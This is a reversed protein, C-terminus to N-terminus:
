RPKAEYDAIAARLKERQECTAPCIRELTALHERAKAPNRAMLYAEGVYEHAGLHRPNLELARRYHKFAAELNGGKRNSFGLLNQIDANSPDVRAASELSVIAGRWDQRNIAKLANDYDSTAGAVPAQYDGVDALAAVPSALALAVLCPILKNM